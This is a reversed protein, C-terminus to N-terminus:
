EPWIAGTTPQSAALANCEEEENRDCAICGGGTTAKAETVLGRNARGIVISSIHSQKCYGFQHAHRPHLKAVQNRLDRVGQPIM